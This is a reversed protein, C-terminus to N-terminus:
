FMGALFLTWLAGFLLLALGDLLVKQRFTLSFFQMETTDIPSLPYSRGLLWDEAVHVAFAIFIVQGLKPNALYLFASLLGVSLLGPLEHFISRARHLHGQFGSERYATRDRILFFLHDADLASASILATLVYATESPGVHAITM